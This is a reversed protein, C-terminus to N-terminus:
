EIVNPTSGSNNLSASYDEMLKQDAEYAAIDALQIDKEAREEDTMPRTTWVDQVINGSWQYTPYPIEYTGVSINCDIRQFRAFQPPLNDLDIDPFADRFNWGMIPHEYPQGNKIQIFLEM